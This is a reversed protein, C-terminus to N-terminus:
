VCGFINPFSEDRCPRGVFELNSQQAFGGQGGLKSV